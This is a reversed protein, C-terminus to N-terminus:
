GDSLLREVIESKCDAYDQMTDWHRDALRQKTTLYAHRADPDARLRDRFTVMRDHEVSGVTFVHLNTRPEELRLLRHEHWDPERVHLVYGIRELAPVYAPEDASDPVVLNIDIVPKAILGMVSTSGVHEVAVAVPGLATGIDAGLRAFTDPWAADYPSLFVRGDLRTPPVLYVAPDVQQM